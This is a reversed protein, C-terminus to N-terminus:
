GLASRFRRFALSALVVTTIGVLAWLLHPMIWLHMDPPRQEVTHLYTMFAQDSLTRTQSALAQLFTQTTQAYALSEGTPDWAAQQAAVGAVAHWRLIQGSVFWGLMITLKIITSSRPAVTGLAFGISGLLITPALVILAWQATFGPLDPALYVDPQLLHGVGAQAVIAVLVLYAVGLSLLLTSLFRGWVYARSPIATTMLLEHTRRRLDRAVGDVTLFPLFAGLFIGPTEPLINYLGWNGTYALWFTRPGYASPITVLQARGVFVELAICATSVLALMIWTSRNSGLRRLEWGLVQM